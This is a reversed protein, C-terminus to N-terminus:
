GNADRRTTNPPPCVIYSISLRNLDGPGDLLSTDMLIPLLDTARTPMPATAARASTPAVDGCWLLLAWGVLFTREHGFWQGLYHHTTGAGVGAQHYLDVSTAVPAMALPFVRGPISPFVSQSLRSLSRSGSDEPEPATVHLVTEWAGVNEGVGPPRLHWGHEQGRQDGSLLEIQSWPMPWAVQGEAVGVTQQLLWVLDLSESPM